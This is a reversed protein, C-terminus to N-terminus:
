NEVNKECIASYSPILERVPLGIDEECKEKVQLMNMGTIRLNGVMLELFRFDILLRWSKSRISYIKM